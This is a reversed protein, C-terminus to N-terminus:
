DVGEQPPRSGNWSIKRRGVCTEIWARRRLAVEPGNKRRALAFRKM